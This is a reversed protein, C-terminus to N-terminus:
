IIWWKLVAATPKLMEGRCRLLKRQGYPVGPRRKERASFPMADCDPPNRARNTIAPPAGKEWLRARSRSYFWCHGTELTKELSARNMYALM